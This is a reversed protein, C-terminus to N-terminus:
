CSPPANKLYEAREKKEEPTRSKEAKNDVEAVALITLGLTGMLLRDASIDKRTPGATNGSSSTHRITQRAQQAAARITPQFSRLAGSIFMFLFVDKQNFEGKLKPFSFFSAMRKM